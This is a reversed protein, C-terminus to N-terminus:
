FEEEIMDVGSLDPVDANLLGNIEILQAQAFLGSTAFLTKIPIDIQFHSKIEAYLRTLNLSNGGLAFFDATASVKELGLIDRWIQALSIEIETSPELYDANLMAEIDIKPLASKDVKGNATLSFKEIVMFFAPVMYDALSQQLSQKLHSVFKREDEALSQEAPIVYAVLQKNPSHGQTLVVAESVTDLARLQNEVEGLEIRYGRIKIQDDVRDIFEINGNARYRVLDGTQYIRQNCLKAPNNIFKQETLLPNNLYGRALGAGGIFLEGPIGIPQPQGESSLIYLQNNGLARGIHPLGVGIVTWTVDVCCETPGYVNLAKRNYQQQWKVLNGWLNLSIAEGGIIMNPLVDGLQQSLWNDALGPTCDLMDISHEQLVARLQDAELKHRNDLVVLGGGYALRTLGQLSADFVFAAVWGWLKPQDTIIDLHYGLHALSHHEICVGKPKGTSGSTYIVYAYNEPTLGAVVPNSDPYGSVVSEDDLKLEEAGAFKTKNVVDSHSLVLQVGSDVIIYDIRDQPTNPDIPLYAGGAKWIAVIAVLMEVSREVCLGVISDPKVGLSILHHALKNAKENLQEYSLRQERFAVALHEPQQAVYREFGLHICESSSTEDNQSGWQALLKIDDEAIFELQFIPTEPAKVISRLLVEFIKGMRVITGHEFLSTAYNWNLWAGDEVEAVTLQLDFKATDNAGDLREITLGPLELTTLENNQLTFLIQFLPSHSLSRQPQISDVLMEFPIGQHNFADLAKQKAQEIFENFSLSDDLQHRFVLTNVFFGILPELQNQTRGAIPCGIVIDSEHSWRALLLAFASELLIFLTTGRALALQNLQAMLEGDFQHSYVAGNYQQEAPRAKDLPLSHVAPIGQLEKIWFELGAALNGDGKVGTQWHAFDAYQIQLPQLPSGVGRYFADYLAVFERTFIGMSWGDSAIHHMTFLLIYEETDLKLLSARLMLDQSLIFPKAAEAVIAKQVETEQQSTILASLDVDMLPVNSPANIQQAPMQDVEVYTTRLVEHREVVGNLARQLAAKDLAGRLRMVVPMNYQVSGGDVKDLFWLRTQAYSLPLPRDRSVPEIASFVIVQQTDIFAALAEVTTHEFLARVSIKVSLRAEVATSLRMALLSHGGITFFNDHIGVQKVKLLEQWIECIARQTDNQPAVYRAELQGSIDVLPLARKDIKGNVTLKFANLVMIASPVMYEALTQKLSQRLTYVFDVENFDAKTSHEAVVYAVLRKHIDKGQTIVVSEKVGPQRVLQANIEGLEIRFGRIKVQDDVRGIYELEGNPMQRVLDGSRYLRKHGNHGFPNEIFRKATLEERNLYGRALGDGGIYLEGPVGIPLLHDYGCVYVSLDALPLGINSLAALEDDQTVRRFTVHVTTETIGYMNILEPMDYGYREVWPLLRQHELAEGGFIVYRLKTEGESVDILNYFASPTTNFVTVNEQKLLQALAEFNRSVDRSVVVLKGGYLLAGWIEWVSFDFAYSHFLSWVDNANFAFHQQSSAFLRTVNRHEIMVGKPNGTSGSTYIVYAMNAANIGLANVDLNDKSYNGFSTPDDLPFFRQDTLPLDDRISQQGLVIGVGSDGLIYELRATPHKPDLPLYAGGSKLIALIGVLMDVSREVCLGVLSDPKVGHEVLWRAVQNARENLQQYSLAAKECCVAVQDPYAKVQQEFLQHLCLQEEFESCSEVWQALQQKDAASTFDLQYILKTPDAVISRLLVEFSDNMREITTAEFLSSAFNWDLQLGQDSARVALELDFKITNEGGPLGEVILNPLDLSSQENNQLTFLIQFVPSHSLSREPQLKEVLMEFPIDQCTFAKLTIEKARALHDCFRQGDDFQHRFVLTNVFFGILSELQGQTRGAIPSGIVIDEEHSWRAILLAFASELLMFLTVDQVKALHSLQKCLDVDFHRTIIRGKFQQQAPRVKDLPLSHVSPIGDLTRHWYELHKSIEQEDFQARQWRAFDAYQIELPPMPNALGQSFAGYFTVFERTMVGISWGDSAIHHMTFLLVHHEDALRLLRVRFMLDNTLDFPLGAERQLQYEVQAIQETENLQSLDVKTIIVKSPPHIIQVAIDDQDGYSTRLVEHREVVADLTQQLADLSLSGRLRLAGPMNYQSSGGELRDIFWLRQQAFSLPLPQDRSFVPIAVYEISSQAVLWASLEAISNNEFLARIADEVGFEKTIASALRMAKLSNGGLDFFNDTIGINSKELVTQWLRTMQRHIDTAPAIHVKPLKKLDVEGNDLLELQEVSILVEPIYHQNFQKSLRATLESDLPMQGAKAGKCQIFAVLRKENGGGVATAYVRNVGGERSLYDQLATLNIEEGGVTDTRQGATAEIFQSSQTKHTLQSVIADVPTVAFFESINANFDATLAELLASYVTAMQEVLEADFLSDAYKWNFSLGSSSQNVTLELDFKITAETGLFDLALGPLELREQGVNQFNFVVQFIPAHALSRQPSLLGVLTDFPM